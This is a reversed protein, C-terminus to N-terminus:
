EEDEVFAQSYALGCVKSSCQCPSVDCSDCHASIAGIPKNVLHYISM